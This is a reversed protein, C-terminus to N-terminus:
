SGRKDGLGSEKAVKNDIISEIMSENLNASRDNISAGGKVAKNETIPEFIKEEMHASKDGSIGDRYPVNSKIPEIM